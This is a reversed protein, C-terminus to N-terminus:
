AYRYVVLVGERDAQTVVSPLSELTFRTDGKEGTREDTLCIGSDIIRLTRRDCTCELRRGAVRYRVVMESPNHSDRHSLYEAGGVALAAKAAEGFDVEAVARRTTGDGLAERLQQRREDALRQQEERERREAEERRRREAEERRWSELRFAMDLAPSVGSVANVTPLGDEYAALVEDEPGLPFEQAEYILPGDEHFRGAVVRVFRDLGAEILHVRESSTVLNETSVRVGDPVLRDGVLYGRVRDSLVDAPAEAAGQWRAKRNELKFTHWGPEPPRRGQLSWTRDGSRLTRGGVWPFVLKEDETQLLDRWGV